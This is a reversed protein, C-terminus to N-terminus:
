SCSYAACYSRLQIEANYSEAVSQYHKELGTGKEYRCSLDYQAAYEQEAAKPYLKVAKQNECGQQKIRPPLMPTNPKYNKKHHYYLIDHRLDSPLLDDYPIVKEGIDEYSINFFRIYPLCETVM